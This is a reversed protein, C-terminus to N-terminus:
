QGDIDIDSASPGLYDQPLMGELCRIATLHRASRRCVLGTEFSWISADLTLPVLGHRRAEPQLTDAAYVLLESKAAVWFMTAVSSSRLAVRPSPLGRAAFFARLRELGYADDVFGAWEGGALSGADAVRARAFPHDRAVFVRMQARGAPVVDLGDSGELNHTSGLWVDVQGTLLAPVIQDRVGIRMEIDIAPFQRRLGILLPPFVSLSWAPGVGIRLAGSTGGVVAAIEVEVFRAENLMNQAHRRLTDAFRSPRVGQATREFLPVGLQEELRAVSKSIAPQTVGLREAAIRMNGADYAAVFLTLGRSTLAQSM